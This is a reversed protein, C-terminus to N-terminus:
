FFWIGVMLFFIYAILRQTLMAPAPFLVYYITGGWWSRGVFVSKPAGNTITYYRQPDTKIDMHGAWSCIQKIPIM